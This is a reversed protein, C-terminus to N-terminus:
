NSPWSGWNSCHKGNDTKRINTQIGSYGANMVARPTFHIKLNADTGFVKGFHGQSLGHGTEHLAITETDYSSGNNNWAFNDNYYIERFWVDAKGNNDEDIVEGDIVIIFTFTVGLIFKSGGPALFDFFQPPLWGAHVVDAVWGTIPDVPDGFGLLGAVVGTNIQSNYPRETIGLESCTVENWTTMARNIAANSDSVPMDNSPRNDDVYYTIDNTGDIFELYTNDPVFDAGLQENGRNSFFVTNGAEGSNEASMYEAMYVIAQMKEKSKLFYEKNMDLDIFTPKMAPLEKLSQELYVDDGESQFAVAVAVLLTSVM